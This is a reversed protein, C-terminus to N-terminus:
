VAREFLRYTKYRVCGIGELAKNMMDNEELVWSMECRTYGKRSGRVMTEWYFVTEIGRKRYEPLMGMTIVRIGDMRRKALLARLWGYPLLSGGAAALMVNVDPLALQFGVPVGKVEALLLLDPDAIKKLDAATWDFEADTMPVFGWNREWAKNYLGRLIELEADLRRMVFSRITVDARTRVREVIRGLKAEFTALLAQTIEWAYLDKVRACGAAAMLDLYYRPTWTMLVVPRREFGEALLGCEDNTSPNVPGRVHTLGRGKVWAAAADVLARAAEPDETCEFFGFFGVRDEHFANHARNEIASIRGVVDAGRRALFHAIDAHAYFPNRRADLLKRVDARLPPVWPTGRHLRYPVELWARLDAPSAVPEVRVPAAM